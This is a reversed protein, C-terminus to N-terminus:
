IMNINSISYFATLHNGSIGTKMRVRDTREEMFLNDINPLEHAILNKLRSKNRFKKKSLKKQFHTTLGVDNDKISDYM